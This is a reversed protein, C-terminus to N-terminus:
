EFKCMQNGPDTVCDVVKEEGVSNKFFVFKLSHRYDKLIEHSEDLSKAHKLKATPINANHSFYYHFSRRGDGHKLKRSNKSIQKKTVYDYIYFTHIRDYKENEFRFQSIIGSSKIDDCSFVLLLFYIVYLM